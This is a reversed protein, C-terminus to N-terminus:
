VLACISLERLLYTYLIASHVSCFVADELQLFYPEPEGSQPEQPDATGPHDGESCGEYTLLSRESSQECGALQLQNM